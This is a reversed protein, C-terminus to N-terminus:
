ALQRHPVASLRGNRHAAAEGRDEPEVLVLHPDDRRVDAAAESLLHQQEIGVLQQHRHRRHPESPRDFVDLVPDLIEEARRVLARLNVLDLQRRQLGAFDDPQAVAEQVVGACEDRVADRDRLDSRGRDGPGVANGVDPDLELRDVRRGDLHRGVASAAPRLGAEGDLARHVLEGLLQPEIAQFDAPAIQDALVLKRIRALAQQERVTQLHREVATLVGLRELHRSIGDAYGCQRGLLLLRARRAPIEAEADGAIDFAGSKAGVLAAMNADVRDGALDIDVGAEGRLPLSVIGDERLDHGVLEADVDRVDDDDFAVGLCEVPADRCKRAAGRHDAAIGDVLGREGHPLLNQLGRGVHQLDVDAVDLQAVGGGPDFPM